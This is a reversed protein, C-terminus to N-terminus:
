EEKCARGLANLLEGFGVDDITKKDKSKEFVNFYYKKMERWVADSGESILIQLIRDSATASGDYYCGNDFFDCYEMKTQDEYMPVPSHYGLDYARPHHNWELACESYQERRMIKNLTRADQEKQVHPLLWQTHFKFQIVGKEGTLYFHCECGHIGYDKTPDDSRKDYAAKFKIIKKFKM